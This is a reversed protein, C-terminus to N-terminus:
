ALSDSAGKAGWTWTRDRGLVRGRISGSVDSSTCFSGARGRTDEASTFSVLEMSWVRQAPGGLAAQESLAALISEAKQAKDNVDILGTNVM